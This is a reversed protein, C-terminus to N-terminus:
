LAEGIVQQKQGRGGELAGADTASLCGCLRRTHRYRAKCRPKVGGPAVLCAGRAHGAPASRSVWAPMDEGAAGIAAVECMGCPFAARLKPCNNLVKLSEDMCVLGARECVKDCCMGKQGAMGVVKGSLWDAGEEEEEIGNGDMALGRMERRVAEVYGIFTRGNYMRTEVMEGACAGKVIEEVSGSVQGKGVTVDVSDQTSDVIRGSKEDRVIYRLSVSDGLEAAVRYTGGCGAVPNLVHRRVRIHLRRGRWPNDKSVPRAIGSLPGQLGLGLAELEMDSVTRRGNLSIRDTASGAIRLVFGIALTIFTIMFIRKRSKRIWAERGRRTRSASITSGELNWSPFAVSVSRELFDRQVFESISRAM